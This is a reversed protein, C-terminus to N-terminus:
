RNWCTPSLEQEEVFRQLGAAVIDFFAEDGSSSIIDPCDNSAILELAGLVTSRLRSPM